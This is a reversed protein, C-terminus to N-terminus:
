VVVAALALQGGAVQLVRVAQRVRLAQPLLAM